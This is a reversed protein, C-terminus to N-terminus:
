RVVSKPVAAKASRGAHDVAVRKWIAPVFAQDRACFAIDIGRLMREFFSSPHNFGVERSPRVVRLRDHHESENMRSEASFFIRQALSTARDSKQWNRLVCVIPRDQRGIKRRNVRLHAFAIQCQLL